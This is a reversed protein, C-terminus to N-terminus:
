INFKQPNKLKQSNKTKKSKKSKFLIKVIKNAKSKNDTNIVKNINIKFVKLALNSLKTIKLFSILLTAICKRSNKVHFIILFQCLKSIGLLRM